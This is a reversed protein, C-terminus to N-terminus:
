KDAQARLALFPSTEPLGKTLVQRALLLGKWGYYQLFSPVPQGERKPKQVGSAIGSFYYDHEVGGAKLRTALPDSNGWVEDTGLVPAKDVTPRFGPALHRLLDTHEIMGAALIVRGALLTRAGESDGSDKPMYSVLIRRGRAPRLSQARAALAIATAEDFLDGIRGYRHSVRIALPDAGLWVIRHRGLMQRVTRGNERAIRQLLEVATKAADGGGVVVVDGRSGALFRAAQEQTAGSYARLLSEAQIVRVDGLAEPSTLLLAAETEVLRRSGEDAFPVAPTGLGTAQIVMDALVHFRRHADELTVRYRGPASRGTTDVVDIARTETLIDVGRRFAAYTSLEGAIGFDKAMPYANAADPPSLDEVQIPSGHLPNQTRGGALVSRPKEPRGHPGDYAGTLSNLRFNAVDCFNNGGAASADVILTSGGHGLLALENAITAGQPGGGIILRKVRVPPRGALAEKLRDSYNALDRRLADVMGGRTSTPAALTLLELRLLKDAPRACAKTLSERTQRRLLEALERRYVPDQMARARLEAVAGGGRSLFRSVSSPDSPLGLHSLAEAIAARPADHRFGRPSAPEQPARASMSGPASAAEVGRAEPSWSGLSAADAQLSAIKAGVSKFRPRTQPPQLRSRATTTSAAPEPGPRAAAPAVALAALFVGVRLRMRTFAHAM